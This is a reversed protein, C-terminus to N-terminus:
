RMEASKMLIYDANEIKDLSVLDSDSLFVEYRGSIVRSLLMTDSYQRVRVDVGESELRECLSDAYRLLAYDTESVYITVSLETELSIGDAQGCVFDKIQNRVDKDSMNRTSPNICFIYDGDLQASEQAAKKAKPTAGSIADIISPPSHWFAGFGAILVLTVVLLILRRKV